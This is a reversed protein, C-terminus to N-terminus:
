LDAKIGDWEKLKQYNFAISIRLDDNENPLVRHLLDDEFVLVDGEEPKIKTSEEEDIGFVIPSALPTLYVVGSFCKAVPDKHNHYEQYFDKEYINVWSGKFMGDFFKDYNLMHSHIIEYIKFKLPLLGKVNLIDGTLNNSTRINCNWDKSTMSDKMSHIVKLSSDIIDKDIKGKSIKM